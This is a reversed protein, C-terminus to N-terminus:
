TSSKICEYVQKSEFVWMGPSTLTKLTKEDKPGKKYMDVRARHRCECYRELNLRGEKPRLSNAQAIKEKLKINQNEIEEIKVQLQESKKENYSKMTDRRDKSIATLSDRYRKLYKENINFSSKFNTTSLSSSVVKRTKTENKLCADRVAELKMMPTVKSQKQEKAILKASTKKAKGLKSCAASNGAVCMEELIKQMKLAKDSNNTALVNSVSFLLIILISLIKM